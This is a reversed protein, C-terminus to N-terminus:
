RKTKKLRDRLRDDIQTNSSTATRKMTTPAPSNSAASPPSSAPHQDSSAATGNKQKTPTSLAQPQAPGPVNADAPTPEGFGM